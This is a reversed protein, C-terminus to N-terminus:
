FIFEPMKYLWKLIPTTWDSEAVGELILKEYMFHIHNRIKNRNEESILVTTKLNESYYPCDQENSMQTFLTDIFDVGDVLKFYNPILHSMMYLAAPICNVSHQKVFLVTETITIASLYLERNYFDQEEKTLGIENFVKKYFSYTLICIAVHLSPVCLFHPDTRHITKFQKMETFDPRKTTSMCFRYVNSAEHYAKKIYDLYKVCYPLAKKEGIRCMLFTLPRIWFNVFDLYIHVKQPTFPVAEDLDHDVSVIRIKRLRLKVSFQLWFFDKVVCKLYEYLSKISKIRFPITLYPRLIGYNVLPILNDSTAKKYNIKM